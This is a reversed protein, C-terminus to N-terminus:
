EDEKEEGDVEAGEDAGEVEGEEAPASVESGGEGVEEM